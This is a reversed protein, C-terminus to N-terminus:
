LHRQHCPLVPRLALPPPPCESHSPTPPPGSPAFLQQLVLIAPEVLGNRRVDPAALPPLAKFYPIHNYTPLCHEFFFIRATLASAM